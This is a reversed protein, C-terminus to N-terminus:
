VEMVVFSTVMDKPIKLGNNNQVVSYKYKDEKYVSYFFDIPIKIWYDNEYAVKKHIIGAGKLSSCVYETYVGCELAVILGKSSTHEIKM